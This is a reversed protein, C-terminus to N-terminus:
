SSESRGEWQPFRSFCKRLIRGGKQIAMLKDFGMLFFGIVNVLIFYGHLIEKALLWGVM